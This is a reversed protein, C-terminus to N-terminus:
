RPAAKLFEDLVRADNRTQPHDPGYVRGDIALPYLALTRRIAAETTSLTSPDVNRPPPFFGPLQHPSIPSPAFTDCSPVDDYPSSPTATVLLAAAIVPFTQLHM